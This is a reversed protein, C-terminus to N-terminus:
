GQHIYDIVDKVSTLKEVDDDSIEISFEEEFKLILEVMDLSDAGLDTFTDQENVAKELRLESMVINIVKAAVESRDRVM